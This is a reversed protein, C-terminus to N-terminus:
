IKGENTYVTVKNGKTGVTVVFRIDKMGRKRFYRTCRETRDLDCAILDAPLWIQCIPSWVICQVYPTAGNAIANEINTLITNLM